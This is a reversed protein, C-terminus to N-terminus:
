KKGRFDPHVAFDGEPTPYDTERVDFIESLVSQGKRKSYGIVADHGANRVAHAVINEQIAYPLLNGGKSNQIILDALDGDAGYKELLNYIDGPSAKRGWQPLEKLVDNRMSQYAGKGNIMDYAVEPAKGGTAGKVILPNKVLTQGEIVQNGGYNNSARTYLGKQSSNKEPLYFVGTRVSVQGSQEPKQFRSVDLLLGDPTISAGQTNKIAELLEPAKPMNIEGKLGKAVSPAIIGMLLPLAQKDDGNIVKYVAAAGGAGIAASTKPNDSLLQRFNTSLDSLKQKTADFAEARSIAGKRAKYLAMALRPAVSPHEIVAMLTGAIAGSTGTAAGAGMKIAPGIGITDRNGIRNSARDLQKQLSYLASDKANLDALEPFQAALEEKIGRAVGKLGETEFSGFQGYKVDQGIKVKMRQAIDVPLEGNVVNPNTKLGEIVGDIAANNEKWMPSDNAKNKLGDLRSIVSDVNVTDGAQKAEDIVGAIKTNLDSIDGALKAVGNKNPLYGGELATRVNRARTSEPLVTSQKLTSEMLREPKTGIAKVVAAGSANAIGRGTAKLAKGGGILGGIDMGAEIVGRGIDGATNQPLSENVSSVGSSIVDGVMSPDLPGSVQPRSQIFDAGSQFSEDLPKGRYLDGGTRALGGIGYAGKIASNLPVTVMEQALRPVEAGINYAADKLSTNRLRTGLTGEQKIFEREMDSVNRGSTDGRYESDSFGLHQFIAGDDYGAKKAQTYQPSTTIFSKIEDPTYGAAQATKITQANIAM